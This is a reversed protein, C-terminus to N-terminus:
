LQGDKRDTRLASCIRLLERQDEESLRSSLERQISRGHSWGMSKQLEAGSETLRVRTARRDEPDTTKEILGRVVLRDVMRSLAPQSLLVGEALDCLRLSGEASALTYLVDYERMSAGDWLGEQDEFIRFLERHAGLLAEWSELALRASM